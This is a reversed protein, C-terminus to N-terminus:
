HWVVDQPIESGPMVKVVHIHNEIIACMFGDERYAQWKETFDSGPTFPIAHRRGDYTEPKIVESAM